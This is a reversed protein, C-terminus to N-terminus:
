KKVFIEAMIVGKLIENSIGIERAKIIADSLNETEKMIKRFANAENSLLVESERVKIFHLYLENPTAVHIIDAVVVPRSKGYRTWYEAHGLITVLDGETLEPNPDFTAVTIAGTGDNVEFRDKNQSLNYIKGGIMIDKVYFGKPSLLYHYGNDEIIKGQFIDKVFIRIKHM